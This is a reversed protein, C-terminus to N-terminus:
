PNSTTTLRPPATPERMSLLMWGLAALAYSGAIGAPPAQIGGTITALTPRLEAPAIAPLVWTLALFWIPAHLASLWARRLSLGLFGHLLALALVRGQAGGLELWALLGAASAGTFASAMLVTAESRWRAASSLLWTSTEHRTLWTLGAATGAMSGIWALQGFEDEGPTPPLLGLARGQEILPWLSALTVAGIWVGPSAALWLGFAGLLPALAKERRKPNSHAAQGPALSSM